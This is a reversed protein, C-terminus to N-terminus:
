TICLHTHIRIHTHTQIDAHTYVDTHSWNMLFILSQCLNKRTDIVCGKSLHCIFALFEISIRNSISSSFSSFSSAVALRVFPSLPSILLHAPFLPQPSKDLINALRIRRNLPATPAPVAVCLILSKHPSTTLSLIPHSTPPKAHCSIGNSIFTHAYTHPTYVNVFKVFVFAFYFYYRYILIRDTKRHILQNRERIVAM